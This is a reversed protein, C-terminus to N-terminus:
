RAWKSAANNIQEIKAEYAKQKSNNSVGRYVGIAVVSLIGIIAIVSIMISIYYKIGPSLNDKKM